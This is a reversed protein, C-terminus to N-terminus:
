KFLYRERPGDVLEFKSTKDGESSEICRYEAELYSRSLDENYTEFGVVYPNFKNLPHPQAEPFKQQLVPILAEYVIRRFLEETAAMEGQEHYINYLDPDDTEPDYTLGEWTYTRLHYFTLRMDFNKYYATAGFYYGQDDFKPHPIPDISSVYLYDSESMDFNSLTYFQVEESYSIGASNIAYARVFYPTEPSLDSLEGTLYMGEVIAETNVLYDNLTPNATTSCVFGRSVNATTDNDIIRMTCFASTTDNSTVGIEMIKPKEGQFDLEKQCSISILVLIAFSIFYQVTKM